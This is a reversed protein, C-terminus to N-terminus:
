VSDLVFKYPTYHVNPTIVRCIHALYQNHHRLLVYEIVLSCMRNHNICGNPTIVRCIHALYQNHHRLPVYEITLSCM